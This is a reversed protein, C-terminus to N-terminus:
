DSVMVLIVFIAGAWLLRWGWRRRLSTPAKTPENLRIGNFMRGDYGCSQAFSGSPPAPFHLRRPASVGLWVGLFLISHIERRMERRDRCRPPQMPNPWAIQGVKLSRSISEGLM